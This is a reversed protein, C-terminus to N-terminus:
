AATPNPNPDNVQPPVGVGGAVRPLAVQMWSCLCGCLFVVIVLGFFVLWWITEGSLTSMPPYGRYPIETPNRSFSRLEWSQVNVNRVTIDGM